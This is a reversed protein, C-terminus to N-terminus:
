RLKLAIIMGEVQTAHYIEALCWVRLFPISFWVSQNVAIKHIKNNETRFLIGSMFCSMKKLELETISKEVPCILM